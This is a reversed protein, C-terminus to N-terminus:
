KVFSKTVLEYHDPYEGKQRELCSNINRKFISSKILAAKLMFIDGVGPVGNIEAGELIQVFDEINRWLAFTNLFENFNELPKKAFGEAILLLSKSVTSVYETEYKSLINLGASSFKDGFLINDKNKKHNHYHERTGHDLFELASALAHHRKAITRNNLYLYNLFVAAISIHDSETQFM